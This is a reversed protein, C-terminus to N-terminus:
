LSIFISKKKKKPPPPPPPPPADTEPYKFDSKEKKERERKMLFVNIWMSILQILSLIMQLIISISSPTLQQAAKNNM